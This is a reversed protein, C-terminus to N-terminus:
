SKKSQIKKIEIEYVDARDKIEYLSPYNKVKEGKLVKNLNDIIEHKIKTLEKKHKVYFLAVLILNQISREKETRYLSHLFVDKKTLKKQPLHYSYDRTLLKIGFQGYASFGTLTADFEAKSSFVIEDKYKYHIVSGPPIRADNTEGYKKLEILFEKIKPWFKGNFQYKNGLTKIFSNRLAKKLKYFITSRKIDTGIIIEAVTKPELIFTYFAIGCGSLHDIFSPQRSLEQLLIQVHTAQFPKIEKDKLEAFGKKKLSRIIRYIQSKDKNLAVAVESVQKKGLAVQELVRLETKSFKM